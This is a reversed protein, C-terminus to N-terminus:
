LTKEKPTGRPRLRSEPMRCEAGGNEPQVVYMGVEFDFRVVRGYEVIESEYDPQGFTRNPNPVDYEVEAGDGFKM